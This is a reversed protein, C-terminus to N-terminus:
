QLHIKPLRESLEDISDQLQTKDTSKLYDAQITEIANKNTEIGSANTSVAENNAEKYNEFEEFLGNLADNTTSIENEVGDIRDSLDSLEEEYTTDQAPIGLAIIDAAEALTAGSVHGEADVTVKYLGSNHSTHTPHEYFNANAEINALKDKESDTYDNTSLGMGDVAAVRSDIDSQMEGLKTDIETETYYVNDHNHDEDSKADIASNLESIMSDVESETYYKNDLNEVVISVEDVSAQAQRIADGTAKADAAKGSQTLTEDVSINDSFSGLIQIKKTAM